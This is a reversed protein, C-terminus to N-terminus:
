RQEGLNDISVSMPWAIYELMSPPIQSCLLDMRFVTRGNPGGLDRLGWELPRVPYILVLISAFHILLIKAVVNSPDVLSRFEDEPLAPLAICASGFKLLATSFMLIWAKLDWLSLSATYVALWGQNSSAELTLVIEMLWGWVKGEM